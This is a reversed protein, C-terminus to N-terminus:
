GGLAELTRTVSARDPHDAPLLALVRQWHRRAEEPRGAQAAALGLYWWPEPDDPALLALREYAARAEPGVRPLGDAPEAPGLLLAALGSVLAPDDPRLALAREFAARAKDPEGLVRRANALRAWGEVDSGDAALRAELGDVMSRIAALREERPLAAIARAREEAEPSPSPAAGAPRGPAAALMAEVELGLGPAASRMAAVVGARWPADAPAAALLSRWIELAGERDGAQAAALGAFFAARPEGPDRARVEALLDRAEPAVTGGGAEILLEALTGKAPISTPDLALARRAAAVGALPDGLAAKSRALLLWGELSSPDSALRQELRAVLAAIDPGDAPPLARAALPQDPLDPRGIRAYTLGALLPVLVLATLLLVRGSRTAQLAPGAARAARLLRREVERRAAAAEAEGLLGEARERELEALQDRYVALEPRGVAEGPRRRLPWALAVLVGLTLLGFALLQATM